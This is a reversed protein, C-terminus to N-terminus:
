FSFSRLGSGGCPCRTMWVRDGKVGGDLERLVPVGPPLGLAGDFRARGLRGEDWRTEFVITQGEVYGLDRLGQKFAEFHVLPPSGPAIVGIRAVKWTQQAGAILPAIALSIGLVVVLGILRM